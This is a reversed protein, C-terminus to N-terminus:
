RNTKANDQWDMFALTEALLQEALHLLHLVQSHHTATKTAALQERM